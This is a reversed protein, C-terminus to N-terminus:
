FVEGQRRRYAITAAGHAPLMKVGSLMVFISEDVDGNRRPTGDVRRTGAGM